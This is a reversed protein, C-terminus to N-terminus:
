DFIDVIGRIVELVTEWLWTQIEDWRTVIWDKIAKVVAAGIGKGISMIIQSQAQTM